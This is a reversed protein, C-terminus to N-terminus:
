TNRMWVQGDAARIERMMEMEKRNELDKFVLCLLRLNEKWQEMGISLSLQRNEWYLEFGKGASVRLWSIQSLDLPLESSALYEMFDSLFPLADEGGPGIDLTPLSHFNASEVPAILLGHTDLYHMAGDKLVWFQPIRETINIIFRDPLERRISVTQVWPNQLLKREIEPIHVSLANDGQRLGSQAIIDDPKLQKTGEVAITSIKFFDSTTCYRYLQMLGVSLGLCLLCLLGLGGLWSMLKRTLGSRDGPSPSPVRRPRVTARAPPAPRRAPTYTNRVPHRKKSLVTPM